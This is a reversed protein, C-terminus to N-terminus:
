RLSHTCVALLGDRPATSCEERAPGEGGLGWGVLRWADGTRVLWLPRGRVAVGGGRPRGVRACGDTHQWRRGGEGGECARWM